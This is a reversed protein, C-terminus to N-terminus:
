FLDLKQKYKEEIEKIKKDIMPIVGEAIYDPKQEKLNRAVDRVVTLFHGDVEISYEYPCCTLCGKCMKEKM